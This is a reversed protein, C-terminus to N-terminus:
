CEDGRRSADLRRAKLALLGAFLLLVFAAAALGQRRYRYERLRAQAAQDVEAAVARGEAIVKGFEEASFTHVVVRARVLAESASSLEYTPREVDMGLREARALAAKARETDGTLALLGRTMATTAQDCRDGPEHCTGCVGRPGMGLMEDSTPLIEHHDHCTTCPPMGGDSFHRAHSSAGFLEAQTVHCKGCVHTVAYVGPPAAGHNGHCDVCAPAGADHEELRKKGHVSRKYRELQDTPISVGKMYDPNHCGTCTAVIRGKSAPSGPDSVPRIGHFGHCSVCTAVRLSGTLARKGHESTRYQALQDTPLRPNVVRMREIDSHCSGCLQAVAWSKPKGVFGKSRSKARGPDEATPDGGHCNVCSLGAGRHVDTAVELLDGHCDVCTNKVAPGTPTVGPAAALPLPRLAGFAIILAALRLM